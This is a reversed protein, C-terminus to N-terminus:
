GWKKGVGMGEAMGQWLRAHAPPRHFGSAAASPLLRSQLAQLCLQCVKLIGAPPLMLSIQNKGVAVLNMGAVAGQFALVVFAAAGDAYLKVRFLGGLFIGGGVEVVRLYFVKSAGFVTWFAEYEGRM